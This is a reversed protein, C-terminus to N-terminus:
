GRKSSSSIKESIFKLSIYAREQSTLYDITKSQNAIIIKQSHILEKNKICETYYNVKNMNMCELWKCHTKTKIHTAFKQQTDYIKDKRSGCPCYMGNKIVNFSPIKDIYNSYEDISPAYIDPETVLEMLNSIYKYLNM